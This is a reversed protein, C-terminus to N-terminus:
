RGLALPRRPPHARLPPHAKLPPATPTGRGAARSPPRVRACEARQTPRPYSASDPALAREPALRSSGTARTHLQERRDHGVRAHPRGPGVEDVAEVPHVLLRGVLRGRRPRPEAVSAAVAAIAEGAAPRIHFGADDSLQVRGFLAQGHHREARPEAVVSLHLEVQEAKVDIARFAVDLERRGPHM